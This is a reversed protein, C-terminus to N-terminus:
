TPILSFGDMPVVDHLDADGGAARVPKAAGRIVVRSAGGADERFFDSPYPLLCTGRSVEDSRTRGLLPQCGDEIVLPADDASGGGEDSCGAAVAAIGALIWLGLRAVATRQTKM